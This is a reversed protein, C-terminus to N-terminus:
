SRLQKKQRKTNTKKRKKKCVVCRKKKTQYFVYITKAGYDIACKCNLNDKIIDDFGNTRGFQNHYYLIYYALWDKGPSENAKVQSIWDFKGWGNNFKLYLVM